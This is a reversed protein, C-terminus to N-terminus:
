RQEERLRAKVADREDKRCATCKFNGQVLRKQYSLVTVHKAKECKLSLNKSYIEGCLKFGCNKAILAASRYFTECKQCWCSNANLLQEQKSSAFPTEDDSVASSSSSAMTSKSLKRLHQLPKLNKELETVFRYFIHGNICKFKYAEAGKCISLRQDSLCEGGFFQAMLFVRDRLGDPQSDVQQPFSPQSAHEKAMKLSQSSSSSPCSDRINSSCGSGNSM